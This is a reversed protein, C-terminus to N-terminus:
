AEETLYIRKVMEYEYSSYRPNFMREWIEIRDRYAYRCVHQSTLEAEIPLESENPM